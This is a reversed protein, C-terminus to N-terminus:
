RQAQAEMADLWAENDEAPDEPMAVYVRRVGPQQSAWSGPEVIDGDTDILIHGEVTRASAEAQQSTAPGLDEGTDSDCLRWCSDHAVFVGPDNAVLDAIAQNLDAWCDFHRGSLRAAILDASPLMGEVQGIGALEDAAHSGINVIATNGADTTVTATHTM